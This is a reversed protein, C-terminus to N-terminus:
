WTAWTEVVYIKEGVGDKLTVPGNKVWHTISLAPAKMGLEGAGASAAAALTLSAALLLKFFTKTKM